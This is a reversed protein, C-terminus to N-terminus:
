NEEISYICLALHTKKKRKKVIEEDNRTQEM